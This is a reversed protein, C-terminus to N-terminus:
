TVFGTYTVRTNEENGDYVVEGVEHLYHSPFILGTNQECSVKYNFDNLILDGGKFTKPMPWILMTLSSSDRHPKYYSGKKYESLLIELSTSGKFYNMTSKIPFKQDKMVEYIEVFLKSAPSIFSYEPQYVESLFIGKNEKLVNGDNDKAGGTKDPESMKDKLLFYENVLQECNLNALHIIDEEESYKYYVGEM